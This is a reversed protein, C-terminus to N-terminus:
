CNFSDDIKSVKALGVKSLAKMGKDWPKNSLGTQEKLTGLNM